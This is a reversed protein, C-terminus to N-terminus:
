YSRGARGLNKCIVVLRDVVCGLGVVCMGGVVVLAGGILHIDNGGGFAVSGIAVGGIMALLGAVAIAWSM